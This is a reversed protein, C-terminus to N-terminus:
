RHQLAKIGTTYFSEDHDEFFDVGASIVEDNTWYQKGALHTKMSPFPFYNSPALDPHYPPHDVVEFGCEHVAAM